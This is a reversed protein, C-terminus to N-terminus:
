AVTLTLPVNGLTARSYPCIKHADEILAQVKAKTTAAITCAM